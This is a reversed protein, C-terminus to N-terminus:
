IQMRMIDQYAEIAKNRVQSAMKMSLIAEEMDIVVKHISDTEGSAFMEASKESKLQTENVENFVKKVPNFKPKDVNNIKSSLQNNSRGIGDLMMRQRGTLLNNM